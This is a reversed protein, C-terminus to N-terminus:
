QLWSEGFSRKQPISVEFGRVQHINAKLKNETLDQLLTGAQVMLYYEKDPISFWDFEKSYGEFGQISIILTLLSRDMHPPITIDEEDTVQLSDMYKEERDYIYSGYNEQQSVEQLFEKPHGVACSIVALLNDILKWYDKVKKSVTPEIRSYTGHFMSDEGTYADEGDYVDVSDQLNNLQEDINERANITDKVYFFGFQNLYNRVKTIIDIDTSDLYHIIPYQNLKPASAIPTM